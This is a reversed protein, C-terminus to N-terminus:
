GGWDPLLRLQEVRRAAPAYCETFYDLVMRRASFRTATNRVSARMMALWRSPLGRGDRQYFAPVVERQLLRYLSEAEAPDDTTPSDMTAGSPIAWGAGPRYGEDWWGDLVSLNLAGNAGAKMGSTGSAELFRRPNNLWVDAGQVLLRAIEMDYDEVFTVRPEARALRVIERLIRKGEQDAPHAKGAFVFQVPQRDDGLVQALRERDSLLLDARKYPAFRRSFGITLADPDLGDGTRRGVAEVLRRRLRRHCEWLEDDPIAEVGSWRPDGPDLDWWDPGVRRELLEAIEPAVWSPMHVGNTVSYIPVQSEPLGPWADKWLRRSVAGHLRSVGVARDAMRLGVYTTCLLESTDGPTRRGLDMFREFGLGVDALYPQLLEQVLGPEFYDSGAAVPTHTTFVFGARAILRAEELTLQRRQRLERIREIALLFGHGENMHFVTAEIGMARLARMGGIGLVIEQPLRRAPEPVYLRDSVARLDPPNSEIDTDLLYLPVRGVQALWVAVHVDRGGLPCTVVLPGDPGEVRRLPLQEFVNEPYEEYQSGEEDIHQRGFGQRYLLGVGVLPLGLDSAAKLHDGALVGLGGSYIPLAETLGFELSFYAVVLPAGADLRGPQRARYRRAAARALELAERVEQRELAREIGEPGLRDLLAVPNHGVREWLDPDLAAFLDQVAPQWTWALDLALDRLEDPM